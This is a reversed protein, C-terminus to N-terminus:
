LGKSSPAGMQHKTSNALLFPSPFRLGASRTASARPRATDEPACPSDPRWLRSENPELRHPHTHQSCSTPLVCSWNPLAFGSSLPVSLRQLGPTLMLATGSDLVPCHATRQENSCRSLCVPVPPRPLPLRALPCTLPATPSVWLGPPCLSGTEPRQTSVLSEAAGPGASPSPTGQVPASSCQDYLLLFVGDGLQTQAAGAGQRQQDTNVGDRNPPAPHSHTGTNSTCRQCHGSLQNQKRSQADRRQAAPAPSM